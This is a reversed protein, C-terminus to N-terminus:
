RGRAGQMSKVVEIVRELDSDDMATGSPLCLGREFLSECRGPGIFRCNSFVPQLHMPKWVPRSEIDHEELKLRILERDAGFEEPEVLIVTLWSNSKGYGPRPLFSIGPLAGLEREYTDRIENKRQVREDLWELQGRGVAALLNSLRYNYGIEEHQYHPAAERAQTSLKRAHDIWKKNTGLLMGGGATTLIKNGNFSLVALDGSTGCKRGNYDAGVSEAADEILAAGHVRCANSVPDLDAPDGYLDVALVAQYPMGHRSGLALEEAVLSPDLNWSGPATDIFVPEAGVYRVVNATASFTLSSVMVRHGRCVGLEILALHLAATGSSLALAYYEGKHVTGEVKGCGRTLYAIMEAEFGDVMPGLPAIWNSDFAEVLLNRECPGVHPPSLYLRSM